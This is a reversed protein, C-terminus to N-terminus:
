RLRNSSRLFVYLKCGRTRVRRRRSTRTAQVWGRTPVGPISSCRTQWRPCALNLARHGRPVHVSWTCNTPPSGVGVQALYSFMNNTIGDEPASRKAVQGGGGQRLLAQVRAHDMEALNRDGLGNIRTAFSLTAKGTRRGVSVAETLTVVLTVLTLSFLAKSPFM